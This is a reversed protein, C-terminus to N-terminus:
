RRVVKGSEVEVIQAQTGDTLIGSIAQGKQPTMDILYGELQSLAVKKNATTTLKSHHKYEIVLAGIRSDLRGKKIHRITGVSIEKEPLFDRNFVSQLLGYLKLEIHSAITAENPASLALSKIEKGLKVLLARFDPQRLKYEQSAEEISALLIESESPSKTKAQM